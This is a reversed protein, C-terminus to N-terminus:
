VHARGIKQITDDNRATASFRMEMDSWSQEILSGESTALIIRQSSDGYSVSTTTLCDHYSSLLQDYRDCLAKKDALSIHRPDSGKLPVHCVAQIPEVPALITESDGVIKAAAIAEHAAWAQLRQLTTKPEIGILAEELATAMMVATRASYRCAAAIMESTVFAISQKQRILAMGVAM